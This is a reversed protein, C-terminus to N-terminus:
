LISRGLKQYLEGMEKGLAERQPHRLNWFADNEYIEEICRQVDEPTKDQILDLENQEENM